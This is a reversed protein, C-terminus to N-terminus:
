MGPMSNLINIYSRVIGLVNETPKLCTRIDQCIQQGNKLAKQSNADLMFKSCESIGSEMTMCHNEINMKFSELASEFSRLAQLDMNTMDGM